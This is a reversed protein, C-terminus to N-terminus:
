IKLLNKRRLYAFALRLRMTSKDCLEHSIGFKSYLNSFHIKLTCQEIHLEKCIQTSDYEKILLELVDKERETINVM